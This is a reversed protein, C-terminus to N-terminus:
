GYLVLKWLTLDGVYSFGWLFFLSIILSLPWILARGELYTGTHQIPKAFGGAM